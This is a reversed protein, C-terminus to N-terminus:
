KREEMFGNEEEKIQLSAFHKVPKAIKQVKLKAGSKM